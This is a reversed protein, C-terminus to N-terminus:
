WSRDHTRSGSASGLNQAIGRVDHGADHNTRVIEMAEEITHHRAHRPARPHRRGPRAARGHGIAALPGVEGRLFRAVPARHRGGSVDVVHQSEPVQAPHRLRRRGAPPQRLQCLGGARDGVLTAAPRDDARDPGGSRPPRPAATSLGRPNTPFVRGIIPVRGACCLRPSVSRYNEAHMAFHSGPPAHGDIYNLRWLETGRRAM